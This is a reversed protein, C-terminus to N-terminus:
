PDCVRVRCKPEPGGVFLYNILFSADASNINGDCNVDGESLPVPAPGGVFLYNIIYSVDASNVNGDRNCDGRYDWIWEWPSIHVAYEVETFIQPQGTWPASMPLFEDPINQMSFLECYSPNLSVPYDPLMWVGGPSPSEPIVHYIDHSVNGEDNHVYSEHGSTHPILMGSGVRGPAGTEANDFFPDSFAIQLEQSNVGAVTVYHGGCRRWQGSTEDYYWFGLLLIVDESKEVLSEVTAFTPAKLTVECLTDALTRGNQFKESLLWRDIGQEMQRVNTGSFQCYGTQIGDTNFYWALREVLEGWSPMGSPQPQPGPIFPQSTAPPPLIGPPNWPTAGHDVNWPDHDDWMPMFPPNNDMYDRVLPFMDIGDGPFGPPVNYKSDFWKFCNAVAVPGCFTWGQIPGVQKVWNDQKQDIDPMGNPAYDEYPPKWYWGPTESLVVYTKCYSTDCGDTLDHLVTYTGASCGSTQWSIQWTGSSTGQGSIRTISYSGCSPIVQISAQDLIVDGDPDTGDITYSVDDGVYARVTDPQTIVPPHNPDLHCYTTCYSTNGQNDTLDVIIRYTISDQCGITIWTVQWTGNWTGQGTLRTVSYTGCPPDIALSAQDLIVDGDPDVGDFTYIVTDCVKYGYLTDTQFIEPPHNVPKASIVVAYEVETYVQQMGDWPSTQPLFEVPVNQRNFNHMWDSPYLSAPYDPLSWEGGPSPSPQMVQYIDHSVNGEDNHIKTNTHPIPSHPIITGNGIRGPFGMEANDVCPDSFAILLSDSCVGAVTVYHGGVRVWEGPGSPCPPFHACGLGDLTPDLGCDPFPPPPPPGIGMLWNSLYNCDLTNWVGDDNVDAADDCSFPPGAYCRSVDPMNVVGDENVDGRIFEQEGPAYYWFGLLLIVNECVEVLSEVQAFTPRPITREYLYDALTKGDPFHESLFWKDIGRQMSDVYTGSFACYGSQIGDTDFYWALREVLEGWSPVQNPTQQGPVFPQPTAPPPGILPGWPTNTHNVNWPDHDDFGVLPPNNDLYDRVLPFQDVGDGPTGSPINFWSDFWKFCNAVAVPGCFTWISDTASLRKVWSDQRQDIDPLGNPAYDPFSPKWYWCGCGSQVEGTLGSIGLLVWGPPPYSWLHYWEWWPPSFGNYWVWQYCPLVVEDDIMISPISGTTGSMYELNVFFPKNLCLTDSYPFEITVSNPYFTTITYVPSLYIEKGPGQCKDPSAIEVSFRVNVSAAAGPFRYLVFQVDTLRFPLPDPTECNSPDFYISIKDGVNWYPFYLAPGWSTYSLFCEDKAGAPPTIPVIKDAPIPTVKQEPAVGSKQAIGLSFSILILALIGLTLILKKNM